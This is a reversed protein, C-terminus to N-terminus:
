PSEVEQVDVIQNLEIGAKLGQALAFALRRAVDFQSLRTEAPTMLTPLELAMGVGIKQAYRAPFLKAAADLRAQVRLRNRAAQAVDAVPEDSIEVCEDVHFDAKCMRAHALMHGFAPVERTWQVMTRICPMDPDEAIRRLSMNQEIMRTAITDALEDSYSTPRAM